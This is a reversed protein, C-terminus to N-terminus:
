GALRRRVAEAVAAPAELPALHGVGPLVRLEVDAVFADPPRGRPM